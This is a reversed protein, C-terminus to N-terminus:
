FASVKVSGQKAKAAIWQARDEANGFSSRPERAPPDSAPAASALAAAAASSRRHADEDGSDESYYEDGGIITVKHDGALPAKKLTARGANPSGPSKPPQGSSPSKPPLQSMPSKPPLQGTPSSSAPQQHLNLPAPPSAKTSTKETPSHQPSTKSPTTQPTLSAGKKAQQDSQQSDNNSTIAQRSPEKVVLKPGMEPSAPPSRGEFIDSRSKRQGPNTESSAAAEIAQQIAVTWKAATEQDGHEASLFYVRTPTHVEFKGGPFPVARGGELNSSGKLRRGEYYEIRAQKTKPHQFLAFWRLKQSHHLAHVTKTKVLYGEKLIVWGKTLHSCLKLGGADALIDLDEQSAM